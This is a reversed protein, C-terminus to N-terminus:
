LQTWDVVYIGGSGSGSFGTLNQILPDYSFTFNSCDHLTGGIQAGVIIQANKPDSNHWHQDSATSTSTSSNYTGTYVLGRVIVQNRYISQYNSASSYPSDSDYDTSQIATGKGGSALLGPVTQSGQSLTSTAALPNFPDMTPGVVTLSATLDIGGTENVLAGAVLITPTSATSGTGFATRLTNEALTLNASGQIEYDGRLVVYAVSSKTTTYNKNADLWTMCYKYVQQPDAVYTTPCPNVSASYAGSAGPCTTTNCANTATEMWTLFNSASSFYHCSTGSTCTSTSGGQDAEAVPLTNAAFNFSPFPIAPPAWSSNHLNVQGGVDGGIDSTGQNCGSCTTLGHTNGAAQNCNSQSACNGTTSNPANTYVNTTTANSQGTFTQGSGDFKVSGADINANDDPICAGTVPDTFGAQNTPGCTSVGGESTAEPTWEYSGSGVAPTGTPQQTAGNSKVEVSNALINGVVVAHPSWQPDGACSSSSGSGSPVAWYNNSVGGSPYLLAPYQLAPYCREPNSADSGPIWYPWNYSSSVNGSPISGGGDAITIAGSAEMSGVRYIAPYNLTIFGNSHISSTVITPSIYSDGHHHVQIGKDAFMAYNFAAPGGAQNRLVVQVTQLAGTNAPYQGQMTVVEDTLDNCGTSARRSASMVFCGDVHEHYQGNGAATWATWAGSGNCSYGSVGTTCYNALYSNSGSWNTTSQQLLGIVDTVGADAATLSNTVQVQRSTQNSTSIINQVMVATLASMVMMVLIVAVLAFGREDDRRAKSIREIV